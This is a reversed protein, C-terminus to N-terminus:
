NEYRRYLESPSKYSKSSTSAVATFTPTEGDKLKKIIFACAEDFCFAVYSDQLGM